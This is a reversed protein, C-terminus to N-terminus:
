RWASTTATAKTAAAWDEAFQRLAGEDAPLAAEGGISGTVDQLAGKSCGGLALALAGAVLGARLARGGGFAGLFSTRFVTEFARNTM